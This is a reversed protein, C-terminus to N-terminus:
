CSKCVFVSFGFINTYRNWDTFGDIKLPTYGPTEDWIVLDHDSWNDGNLIRAHSHNKIEPNNVNQVEIKM